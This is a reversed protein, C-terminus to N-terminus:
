SQQTIDATELVKLVSEVVVNCESDYLDLNGENHRKIHVYVSARSRYKLSKVNRACSPM